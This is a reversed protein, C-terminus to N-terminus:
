AAEPLRFKLQAIRKSIIEHLLYGAPRFAGLMFKEQGDRNMYIRLGAYHQIAGDPAVGPRVYTKLIYDRHSDAERNKRQTELRDIKNIVLAGQDIAELFNKMVHEAQVSPKCNRPGKIEKVILGIKGNKLESLSVEVTALSKGHDRISLIHSDANSCSYTRGKVCHRMDNGEQALEAGTRLNVVTYRSDMPWSSNPIIAAWKNNELDPCAAEPLRMDTRHWLTNFRFINGISKDDLLHELAIEKSSYSLWLDKKRIDEFKFGQELLRNVLSPYIVANQYENLVDNFGDLKYINGEIKHHLYESWSIRLSQQERITNALIRYFHSSEQFPTDCDVQEALKAIYFVVQGFSKNQIKGKPSLQDLLSQYEPVLKVLEKKFANFDTLLVKINRILTLVQKKDKLNLLGAEYSGFRDRFIQGVLLQHPKKFYQPKWSYNEFDSDTVKALFNFFDKALVEEPIGIKNVLIGLLNDNRNKLFYNFLGAESQAKKLFDKEATNLLTCVSDTFNNSLLYSVFSEDGIQCDPNAGSKLLLCIMRQDKTIAAIQILSLSKVYDQDWLKLDTRKQLLQFNKNSLFSLSKTALSILVNSDFGKKLLESVIDLHGFIVALHLPTFGYNNPRNIDMGLKEFYNLFNLTNYQGRIGAMHTLDNGHSDQSNLASLKGLLSNRDYNTFSYERLDRNLKPDQQVFEALPLSGLLDSIKLM